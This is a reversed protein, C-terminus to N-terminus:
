EENKIKMTMLLAVRSDHSMFENLPVGADAFAKALDAEYTTSEASFCMLAWAIYCGLRCEEYWEQGQIDICGYCTADCILVCGLASCQIEPPSTWWCAAFNSQGCGPALGCGGGCNPFPCCLALMANKDPSLEAAPSEKTSTPIVVIAVAIITCVSLPLLIRKLM